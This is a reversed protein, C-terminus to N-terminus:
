CIIPTDRLAVNVTSFFKEALLFNQTLLSWTSHCWEQKVFVQSQGCKLKRKKM